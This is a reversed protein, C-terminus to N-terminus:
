KNVFICVDEQLLNIALMKSNIEFTPRLGRELNEFGALCETM